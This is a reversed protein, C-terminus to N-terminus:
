TVRARGAGNCRVRGVGASARFVAVIARGQLVPALGRESRALTEIDYHWVEDADPARVDAGHALSLEIAVRADAPLGSAEWTWEASVTGMADFEWVVGFGPARCAVRLRDDVVDVEYSCRTRAWSAVPVYAARAYASADVAPGIAVVVGLARDALDVPPLEPASQIGELEHISPTGEAAPDRAAPAHDPSARPLPPEHYAELRRTLTDALNRAQAFHTLEVLAGGRNPAVIAAISAAHVAVEVDGDDDTDVCEAALSEGRRLIGEALALQSRVAHRLHPLYLGGFVGHWSADNCQARGIARRADRPDGRSRCLASLARTKKHLRNAEAYKALFNRWHGGRVFAGDPGALRDPGLEAELAQLRRAGPAPLAWAEMERYSATPLYALGACPVADMADAGGCVTVTGDARLADLEDCFADFWGRAYV